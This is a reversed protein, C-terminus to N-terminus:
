FSWASDPFTEHPSEEQDRRDCLQWHLHRHRPCSNVVMALHVYMAQLLLVRSDTMAAISLIRETACGSVHSGWRPQPFGQRHIWASLDERSRVGWSRMARALASWGDLVAQRGNWIGDGASLSEVQDGAHALWLLM